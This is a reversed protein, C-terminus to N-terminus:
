RQNHSQCPWHPQVIMQLRWLVSRVEIKNHLQGRAEKPCNYLMQLTKEQQKQAKSAAAEAAAATRDKERAEKAMQQVVKAEEAMKKKYLTAATKLQKTEAKHLKEADKEKQKVSGRARAERVKRPSWYVAGGHYEKRQQLDLPKSKKQHKKKTTLANRLGDIEHHLLENQVQLSHM